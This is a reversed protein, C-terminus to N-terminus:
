KKGLAGKLRELVLSWAHDFYDWGRDWPEGERWGHVFLRVRVQGDNQEDFLVVVQTMEAAYRLEPVDPPFTWSFAIMKEPLWALVKSGESGRRGQEDPDLNLFWEYRGGIELDVNSKASVFSLGDETTWAHWVNKIPAEVLIEKSLIKNM